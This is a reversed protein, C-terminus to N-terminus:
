LDGKFCEYFGTKKAGKSRGGIKEVTKM